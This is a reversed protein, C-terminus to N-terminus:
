RWGLLKANVYGLANNIAQMRGYGYFLLGHFIVVYITGKNDQKYKLIKM